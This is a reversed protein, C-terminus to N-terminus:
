CAIDFNYSSFNNYEEVLLTFAKKAEDIESLKCNQEIEACSKAFSEIGLNSSSSKLLHATAEAPKADSYGLEKELRKMLDPTNQKFEEYLEHLEEGMLSSLENYIEMNLIPKDDAM